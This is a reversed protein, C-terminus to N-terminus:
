CISVSCTKERKPVIRIGTDKGRGRGDREEDEGCLSGFFEGGLRSCLLDKRERRNVFLRARHIM